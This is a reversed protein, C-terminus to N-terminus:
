NTSPGTTPSNGFGEPPPGDGRFAVFGGHCREGFLAFAQLLLREGDAESKCPSVISPSGDLFTVVAIFDGMEPPLNCILCDGPEPLDPLDQGDAPREHDPSAPPLALPPDFMGPPIRNKM